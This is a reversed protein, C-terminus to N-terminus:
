QRTPTTVLINHILKQWAASRRGREPAGIRSRREGSELDEQQAQTMM